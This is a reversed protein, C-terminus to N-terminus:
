SITTFFPCVTLPLFSDLCCFISLDRPPSSVAIRIHQCLHLVQDPASSIPFILNPPSTRREDTVVAPLIVGHSISSFLCM